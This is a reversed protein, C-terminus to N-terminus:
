DVRKSVYHEIHIGFHKEITFNTAIRNEIIPAKVGDGLKCTCKEIYIEDWLDADIFSQLLQAGGEVLLSEKKQRYLVRMMQPLISTSFDISIYKLSEENSSKEKETFILTPKNDQLLNLSLPLTLEKDVVVRLPNKGYWNRVTLSPNDLLATRRGVMIADSEARLKHVLM